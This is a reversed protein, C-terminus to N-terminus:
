LILTCWEPVQYVALRLDSQPRDLQGTHTTTGPAPPMLRQGHGMYTNGAAEVSDFDPGSRIKRAICPSTKECAKLGWCFALNLEAPLIALGAKVNLSVQAFDMAKPM